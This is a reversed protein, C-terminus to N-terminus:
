AAKGKKLPKVNSAPKKAAEAQKMERRVRAWTRAADTDASGYYRFGPELLRARKM